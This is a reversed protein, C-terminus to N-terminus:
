SSAPGTFDGMLSGEFFFALCTLNRGLRSSACGGLLPVLRLQMFYGIGPLAGSFPKFCVDSRAQNPM